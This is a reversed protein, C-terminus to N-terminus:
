RPTPKSWYRVVAVPHGVDDGSLVTHEEMDRTFVGAWGGYTVKVKRMPPPPSLTHIYDIYLIVQQIHDFYM